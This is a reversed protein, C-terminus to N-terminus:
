YRLLFVCGGVRGALKLPVLWWAAGRLRVQTDVGLTSCGVGTGLGLSLGGTGGPRGREFNYINDIIGLCVMGRACCITITSGNGGGSHVV